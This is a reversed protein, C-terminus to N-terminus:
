RTLATILLISSAILQLAVTVTTLIWSIANDRVITVYDVMDESLRHRWRYVYVLTKKCFWGNNATKIAIPDIIYRYRWDTKPLKKYMDTTILIM